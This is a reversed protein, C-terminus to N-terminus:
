RFRPVLRGTRGQYDTYVSGFREIMMREEYPIRLVCLAGFAVIAGFGAIWNHILLPFAGFVLWLATYMPHRMRRYVGKDVLTHDERLETTVSWNRGLDAHSRYFLWFGPVLLLLSAATAWDPLDYNAFSFVGTLLHILPLVMSGLTIGILLIRETGVQEQRDITNEATEAAFPARIVATAVAAGLWLLSGWGNEDLRWILLGATVAMAIPGALRSLIASM